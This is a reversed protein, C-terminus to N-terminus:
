GINGPPESGPRWDQLNAITTFYGGPPSISPQVPLFPQYFLWLGNTSTTLPVLKKSLWHNFMNFLLGILFNEVMKPGVPDTSIRFRFGDM